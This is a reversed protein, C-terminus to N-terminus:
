TIPNYSRHKSLPQRAVRCRGAKANRGTCCDVPNPQLALFAARRRTLHAAVLRVYQGTARSLWRTKILPVTGSCSKCKVTRVWFFALPEQGEPSPYLRDMRKRLAWHLRAGWARVHESLDGVVEGSGNTPTVLLSQQGVSNPPHGRTLTARAAALTIGRRRARAKALDEILEPIEWVFDPLPKTAGAFRQPYELTCREVFWAVPNIDSAHAECGMRIAELPIAGGGAFPDLVKPARGGYAARILDRFNALDPDTERGWALIGGEVREKGATDRKVEGGIRALLEERAAKTGPDPLLSAILAARSAALPRRAPWIHLTSLHGHRVSKEHVSAVSTARLPFAREILRPTDATVQGITEPTVTRAPAPTPTAPASRAM